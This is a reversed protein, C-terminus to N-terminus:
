RIASLSRACHGSACPPPAASLFALRRPLAIRGVRAGSLKLRKNPLQELFSLWGNGAPPSSGGCPDSGGLVLGPADVPEAVRASAAHRRSLCRRENACGRTRRVGWM